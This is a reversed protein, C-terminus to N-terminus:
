VRFGLGLNSPTHPLQKDREPLLESGHLILFELAM